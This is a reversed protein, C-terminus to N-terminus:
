LKSEKILAALDVIRIRLPRPQGALDSVSIRGLDDMWRQLTLSQDPADLRRKKQPPEAAEEEKEEAEQAGAAAPVEDPQLERTESSSSSSSSSSSPPDYEDEDDDDDESEASSLSMSSSSASSPEPSRAPRSPVVCGLRNAALTKLFAPVETPTCDGHFEVCNGLHGPQSCRSHLLIGHKGHMGPTERWVKTVQTVVAASSLLNNASFAHITYPVAMKEPLQSFFTVPSM